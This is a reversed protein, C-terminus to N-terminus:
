AELGVTMVPIDSARVVKETVSGLLYRGVGTRGHTGMVILDVDNDRAYRLIQEDPIGELVTGTVEIGAESGAQEIQEVPERGAEVLSEVVSQEVSYATHLSTDVVHVAHVTSGYQDAVAFAHEMARETGESGDTPLLIDDYM